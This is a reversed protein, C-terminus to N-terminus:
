VYIINLWWLYLFAFPIFGYLADFRDLLGGHGPLISGSDKVNSLRKLKSEILDGAVGAISVIFAMIIWHSIQGMGTIISLIIACTASILVGGILGEWTKNPSVLPILKTKGFKKGSFYAGVDAAWILILLCLVLLAGHEYTARIILLLAISNGIYLLAILNPVHRVWQSKGFFIFDVTLVFM